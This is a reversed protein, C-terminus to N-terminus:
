PLHWELVRWRPPLGECALTAEADGARGLICPWAQGELAPRTAREVAWVGEDWTGFTIQFDLLAEAEAAHRQVVQTLTDDPATDAPWAAERPRLHMLYRGSVLLREATPEGAADLAALAIRRGVSGPLREWVELYSGHIGTEIVREPTEFVMHGADPTSRPPQFDISRQWTCVEPRAPDPRTIATTGAFGQQQARDAPTAREADAPVRLDGHWLGTQLWHVWSTTDRGEPTELLTRQWVGHYRDPITPPSM